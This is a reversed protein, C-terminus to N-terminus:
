EVKIYAKVYKIWNNEPPFIWTLSESSSTNVRSPPSHVPTTLWYILNWINYEGFIRSLETIETDYELEIQTM